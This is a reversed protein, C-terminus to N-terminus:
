KSLKGRSLGSKCFPFVEFLFREPPFDDMSDFTMQNPCSKVLTSSKTSIELYCLVKWSSLLWGKRLLSGFLIVKAGISLKKHVSSKKFQNREWDLSWYFWVRLLKRKGLKETKCLLTIAILFSNEKNQEYCPQFKMPFSKLLCM